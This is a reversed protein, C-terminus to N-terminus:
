IAKTKIGMNPRWVLVLTLSMNLFFYVAWGAQAPSWSSVALLELVSSGWGLTWGLRNEQEPNKWTHRFNPVSALFDAAISIFLAVLPQGTVLWLLIGLLATAVCTKNLWDWNNDGHKISLIAVLLQSFCLWVPLILVQWSAGAFWSSTVAVFTLITWTWWSPGSPRTTKKFIAKLYPIFAIISIISGLIGFFLNYSHPM